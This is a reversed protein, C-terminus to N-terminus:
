IKVGIICIDDIQEIGTMWSQITEILIKRQEDMPKDNVSVLLNKLSSYKFKKNSEGGFQDAFGDSFIYIQDDKQLEIVNNRFMGTEDGIFQGIPKKDAKVEVIKKNRVIYLPNHAGAYELINKNLDLSCLAIDMGDRISSEEYTQRITSNVIENLKNLIEAPQRLAFENVARNLGYHGIISIFAGPVGHGTCDVAAFLIKDDKKEIWYFDGSVIDKPLYLIFSLPLYETFVKHEPLISEQIKSAYRISNTIDLHIQEIKQKQEKLLENAKKKHIYSRYMFIVFILILSIVIILAYQFTTKQKVIADMKEIENNKLEIEKVKKDNEYRAEIEAQLQISKELNLSDKAINYLELYDWAKEFNKMNYYSMSINQYANKTDDKSGIEKAIKLSKEAYEIAESYMKKRSFVQGISNLSLSMGKRNGVESYLCYSNNFYELAKEIDTLTSDKDSAYVGGLNHFCDALGNKEGLNKLIEAAKNYNEIAKAFKNQLKYALGLNNLCNASRKVDGLEESIEKALTYNEIAKPLNNQYLYISGINALCKSILDKNKLLEAIKLSKQYNEIASPYDGQRLYVNGSNIYCSALKVSDSTQESIKTALKYYGIAESYRGQDESLYGLNIFSNYIGNKYDNILSLKRAQRVYFGAKATDSFEYVLFLENYIDVKENVNNTKKLVQLLSDTDGFLHISLSLFCGILILKAMRFFM